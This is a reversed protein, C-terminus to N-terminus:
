GNFASYSGFSAAGHYIGDLDCSIFKCLSILLFFSNFYDPVTDKNKTGKSLSISFIPNTTPTPHEVDGVVRANHTHLAFSYYPPWSNQAYLLM